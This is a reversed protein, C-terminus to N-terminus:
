LFGTVHRVHESYSWVRQLPDRSIRLETASGSQCSLTPGGTRRGTREEKIAIKHQFPALAPSTCLLSFFPPNESAPNERQRGRDM